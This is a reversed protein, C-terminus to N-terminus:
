ETPPYIKAERALREAKLRERNKRIAEQEREYESLTSTPAPDVQKFLKSADLKPDTMGNGLFYLSPLANGIRGDGDDPGAYM